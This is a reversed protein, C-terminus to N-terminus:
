SLRTRRYLALGLFAFVGSGAILWSSPEPVEQFGISLNVGTFEAFASTKTVDLRLIDGVHVPLSGSYSLPHLRDYSDGDFLDGQKLPENNLLLVFHNSRGINRALWLSLSIDAMGTIPSTWILNTSGTNPSASHVVVDGQQFDVGPFLPNASSKFWAPVHTPGDPVLAWVPQSGEFFGPRWSSIFPLANNGERLMWPGNPNNINSWDSGLNFITTAFLSVSFNLVFLARALKLAFM